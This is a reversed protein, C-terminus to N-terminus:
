QRGGGAEGLKGGLARLYGDMTRTEGIVYDSVFRFVPSRVAGDETIRM